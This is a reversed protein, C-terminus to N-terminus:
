RNKKCNLKRTLRLIKKDIQFYATRNLSNNTYMTQIDLIIKLQSVKLIERIMMKKLNKKVKLFIRM